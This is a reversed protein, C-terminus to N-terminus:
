LGFKKKLLLVDHQGFIKQAVLPALAVEDCVAKGDVKVTTKILQFMGKPWDFNKLMEELSAGEAKNEVKVKDGEEDIIKYRAILQYKKGKEAEQKEAKLKALAEKEVKAAEKLAAVEAKAAAKEKAADEKVAKAEAKVKALEEKETM